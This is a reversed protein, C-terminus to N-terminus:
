ESLLYKIASRELPPKERQPPAAVCFVKLCTPRRLSSSLSASSFIIIAAWSAAQLSRSTRARERPEARACLCVFRCSIFVHRNEIFSEEMRGSNTWQAGTTNSGFKSAVGAATKGVGRGRAAETQVGVMWNFTQWCRSCGEGREAVRPRCCCYSLFFTERGQKRGAWLVRIM